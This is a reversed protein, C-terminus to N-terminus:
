ASQPQDGRLGDHIRQALGASVGPAAQLEALSAGRVAKMSGFHRLLAQARKRGIGPLAELDSRLTERKRLSRHFTIAFRHSEDRIRQLFHLTASNKRLRLENKQSPKVVYEYDEEGGRAVGRRRESRGKALGILDVDQPGIGLSGLVHAAINVQGKGGDILILDPLPQEGTLVRRYRRTLVEHMSRFDDPGDAARIRFKRYDQKAARNREWVVMSAVTHSGQMNSIDFAEVREPLRRLGLQQQVEGLVAGDDVHQQM